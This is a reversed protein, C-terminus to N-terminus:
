GAQDLVGCEPCPQVSGPWGRRQLVAGIKEATACGDRFVQRYGVRLTLEEHAVANDLDRDLDDYRAEPSSHYILGDLEVLTAWKEYAADVLTGGAATTRPEQRHALPLGHPREVLDLYGHELVSCTGEAVDGLIGALWARRAIRQRRGLAELLKRATTRRSGCADALVAVAALDDPSDAAVDLVADHYRIRPPGLNWQVREDLHGTRHVVIGRPPVLRRDKAVAIHIVDDDRGRRGPGDAARLASAHTLAAPRGWLVAAWAREVWTRPGNHGIYVGDHVAVWTGRRLLRAIETRTMGAELAQRRSVLGHQLTRLREVEHRAKKSHDDPSEM